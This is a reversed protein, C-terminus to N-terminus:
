SHRGFIELLNGELDLFHATPIGWEQWTPPVTM